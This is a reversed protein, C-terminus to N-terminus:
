SESDRLYDGAGYGRVEDDIWSEGADRLRLMQAKWRKDHGKGYHHCMQHLLVRRLNENRLGRAIKFTRSKRECRGKILGPLYAWTVRCGSLRNSFFKQNLENFLGRLSKGSDGARVRPNLRPNCEDHVRLRATNSGCKECIGAGTQRLVQEPIKLKSRFTKSARFILATRLEKSKRRLRPNVAIFGVEGIHFPRGKQLTEMCLDSVVNLIDEARALTIDQDDALAAILERETM